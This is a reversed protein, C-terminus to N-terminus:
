PGTVVAGVPSGAQERGLAMGVDELAQPGVPATRTASRVASSRTESMVTRRSRSSSSDRPWRTLTWPPAVSSARSAGDMLGAEVRLPGELVLGLDRDRSSGRAEDLGAHGDRDRRARRRELDAASEEVQWAQRDHRVGDRGRVREVVATSESWVIM